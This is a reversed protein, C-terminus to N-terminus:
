MDSFIDEPTDEEAPAAPAADPVFVPESYLPNPTLIASAEAIIASVSLMEAKPNFDLTIDREITKLVSDDDENLIKVTLKHDKGVMKKIIRDGAWMDFGKTDEDIYVTGYPMAEYRAGGASAPGNDIIVDFEKGLHYMSFGLGVLCVVTLLRILLRIARVPRTKISLGSVSM